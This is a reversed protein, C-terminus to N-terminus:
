LRHLLQCEPRRALRLRARRLRSKLTRESETSQTRVQVRAPIELLKREAVHTLDAFLGPEKWALSSEGSLFCTDQWSPSGKLSQSVAAASNERREAWARRPASGSHPCLNRWLGPSSGKCAFLM